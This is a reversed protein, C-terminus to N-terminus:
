KTNKFGMKLSAVEKIFSEQDLGKKYKHLLAILGRIGEEKVLALDFNIKQNDYRKRSGTKRLVEELGPPIFFQSRRPLYCHYEHLYIGIGAFDFDGFHLYPNPIAQLWKILDRSQSQPYRSVLLPRIHKFLYAQEELKRFNEANEVGVITVDPSPSFHEFDYIFHFMGERPELLIKEEHFLAPIPELSNVLFGKFTRVRKLKSDGSVETLASRSSGKQELAAVYASLDKISCRTDLYIELNPRSLIGIRQRVKGTRYLIHVEVLEDIIRHKAQGAPLIEGKSLKLLVKAIRLPM